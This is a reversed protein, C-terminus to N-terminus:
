LLNDRLAKFIADYVAQDRVAPLEVHINYSLALRHSKSASPNSVPRPTEPAPPEVISDIKDERVVPATAPASFDAEKALAVFSAAMKNLVADGKTGQTLIKLKNKVWSVDKENAKNNLKFLDAYARRIGEALVNKHREDDMYDFYPQKPAGSEDIFGLAKLMGIIGRDNTSKFDLSELFKHTFREPPQAERIAHLIEPLNKVQLLYADSLAM